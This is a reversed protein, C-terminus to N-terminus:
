LSRTRGKEAEYEPFTGEYYAGVLFKGQLSKERFDKVLKSSFLENNKYTDKESITINKPKIGRKVLMNFIASEQDVQYTLLDCIIEIFNNENNLKHKKIYGKWIEHNNKITKPKLLYNHNEKKLNSSIYVKLNEINSNAERQLAKIMYLPVKNSIQELNCHALASIGHEKDEMIVVPDDSVPYGIVIGPNDEKLLVIDSPKKVYILDENESYINDDAIFYSGTKYSIQNDYPIIIKRGDFGYKKCMLIRNKLFEIKIREIEDVKGAFGKKDFEESSYDKFYSKLQMPKDYINTEFIKLNSIGKM